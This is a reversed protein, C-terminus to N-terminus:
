RKWVTADLNLVTRCVITMAALETKDLDESPQSEGLSLLAAAAEPDARYHKIEDAHLSALVERETEDPRRGTLTVFAWDLRSALDGERSLAREALSRSAELFQVDNLLVLAQLPTNTRARKVICVERSESDFAMMNPLPATRKWVSYLSRRYLAQGVSQKYSPSMSNSERWLDEGPQYPSVPPGGRQPNLRGSAALALDRIEEASLRYAPGRALWRNDRDDEALSGTARSDQRYTASLVLQKSFRKVDWGSEIFDRALWDLLEPHTPAEGQLGFNEPTRVLGAGFFGGWLRNVTVRSTLPHDPATAWAALGLRDRPQDAPFPPALDTFTNRSVLTEDSRPADYAGRHLVHAERPTAMEDMVPIENIAEEATVFAQRAATLEAMAERAEADVASVYHAATSAISEGTALHGIETDTLARRYVRVDDILGGDLGRDRFRQGITLKGGHMVKVLARKKIQDRLVETELEVGNVYLKLGAARSRGDYTATVQIWQDAPIATKSRVGIANGPWVRYMRSELFGDTITLDWGNFALQGRSVQAIVAQEASRKTERMSVVLSFPTWRDFAEIGPMVVGREGDLRVAMRPTEESASEAGDASATPKLRPLPSDTVEVTPLPKAPNADGKGAYYTEKLEKKFPVDFGLALVQDPIQDLPEDSPPQNHLRQEANAVADQYAAEAAEVARRAEELTAAQEDTPLMLSPAPVKESNDYVGNEDISNFFASLSYYDRQSIPDYKHDHCRSCELTLGLVATGFTHVRDAVNELRWEEFVAGGENNLRHIRNFATALRQDRTPNELLDGAIQWTLFDDYPLNDNFARVVWDRYPWQTNLKDSQYGYSDAYRAADLWAVAQHEGYAPSALLRDVEAAYAAERNGSDTLRQDFAEIEEPTPPLGTLDFTVRRLWRAPTAEDQPALGRRGLSEFVFADLPTKAWGSTDGAPVPVSAPLPRFAWHVEYKAGAKIWRDVTVKADDTLSLKSYPPPMMEDPDDSHIRRAVEGSEIADRAADELDLRLDAERTEADPGHCYYCKDSLIPRVDRDFSVEEAHALSPLAIAVVYLACRLTRFLKATPMANYPSATDM